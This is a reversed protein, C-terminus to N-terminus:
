IIWTPPQMRSSSMTNTITNTNSNTNTNTCNARVSYNLTNHICSKLRACERYAQDKKKEKSSLFFDFTEFNNEKLLM